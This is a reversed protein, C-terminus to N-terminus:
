WRRQRGMSRVAKSFQEQLDSERFAGKGSPGARLNVGLIVNRFVQCACNVQGSLKRKKACWGPRGTPSRLRCKDPHSTSETFTHAKVVEPILAKSWWLASELAEPLGEGMGWYKLWLQRVGCRLHECSGGAGRPGSKPLDQNSRTWGGGRGVLDKM